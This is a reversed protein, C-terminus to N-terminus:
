YALPTVQRWYCRLAQLPGLEVGIRQNRQLSAHDIDCASQTHVDNQDSVGRRLQRHPWELLLTLEMDEKQSTSFSEVYWQVRTLIAPLLLMQEPLPRYQVANAM